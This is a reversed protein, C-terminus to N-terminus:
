ELDDQIKDFFNYFGKIKDFYSDLTPPSKSYDLRIIFCENFKQIVASDFNKVTFFDLKIENLSKKEKKSNLIYGENIITYDSNKKFKIEGSFPTINSYFLIGNICILDKKHFHYNHKTSTIRVRRNQSEEEEIIEKYKKKFKENLQRKFNNHFIIEDRSLMKGEKSFWKERDIVLNVKASAKYILFSLDSDSDSIVGRMNEEYIRIGGDDCKIKKEISLEAKEKEYENKLLESYKVWGGADEIMQQHAKKKEEEIKRQVAEEQKYIYERKEREIREKRKSGDIRAKFEIKFREWTRAVGYVKIEIYFHGLILLVAIILIISGLFKGWFILQEM